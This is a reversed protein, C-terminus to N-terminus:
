CRRRRALRRVARVVGRGDARPDPGVQETIAVYPRQSGMGPSTRRSCPSRAIIGDHFADTFLHGLRGHLRYVYSEARGEARLMATWAKVHSPRVASLQMDGVHEVIVALHIRASKVSSPRRTGYGALWTEPWDKVSVTATRPSVHMGGVLKATQEDLWSQADM